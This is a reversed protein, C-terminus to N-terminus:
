QCNRRTIHNEIQKITLGLSKGIDRRSKGAEQMEKIPKELEKIRTYKRAMCIGGITTEIRCYSARKTMTRKEPNEASIGGRNNTYFLECIM